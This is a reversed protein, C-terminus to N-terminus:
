DGNEIIDFPGVFDILDQERAIKSIFKPKLIKDKDILKFLDQTDNAIALIQGESIAIYKGYHKSFWDNDNILTSYKDINPDPIVIDEDDLLQDKFSMIKNDLSDLMRYLINKIDKRRNDTKSQFHDARLKNAMRKHNGNYGSLMAVFISSDNSKIEELADLGEQNRSEGMHIDLIFYKSNGSKAADYADEKKTLMIVEPCGLDTLIYEITQSDEPDNEMVAIPFATINSLNIGLM